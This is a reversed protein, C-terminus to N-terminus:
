SPTYVFSYRIEIISLQCVKVTLKLLSALAADSVLTSEELSTMNVTQYHRILVPVTLEIMHEAVGIFSQHQQALLQM